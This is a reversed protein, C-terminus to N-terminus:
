VGMVEKLRTDIRGIHSDLWSDVMDVLALASDHTFGAVTFRAKEKEVRKLFLEHEHKNHDAIPCKHALMCCEEISFHMEAYTILFDLFLDYTRKGRGAHLAQRFNDSSEFLTRHQQDIEADGTAHREQWKM